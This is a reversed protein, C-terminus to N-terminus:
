MHEITFGTSTGKSGLFFCALFEVAWGRPIHRQPPTAELFWEAAHSAVSGPFPIGPASPRFIPYVTIYWIFEMYAM